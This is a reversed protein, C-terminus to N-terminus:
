DIEAFNCSFKNDFQMLFISAYLLKAGGAFIEVFSGLGISKIGCSQIEYLELCQFVSLQILYKELYEMGRIFWTVISINNKVFYRTGINNPSFNFSFHKSDLLEALTLCKSWKLSYRITVSVCNLSELCHSM